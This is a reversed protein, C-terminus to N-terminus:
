KNLNKALADLTLKDTDDFKVDANKLSDGIGISIEGARNISDVGSQADEIGAVHEPTLNM